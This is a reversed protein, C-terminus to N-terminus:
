ELNDWASVEDREFQLVSLLVIVGALGIFAYIGHGNMFNLIFTCVASATLLWFGTKKWKWILIVSVVNMAALIAFFLIQIKPIQFKTDVALGLILSSLYILGGLASLVVILILYATVCGHRKKIISSNRENEM